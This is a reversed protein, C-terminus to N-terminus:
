DEEIRFASTQITAPLNGRIIERFLNEQAMKLRCIEILHDVLAAHDLQDAARRLKSLEFQQEFTLTASKDPYIM